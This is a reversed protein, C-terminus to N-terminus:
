RPTWLVLRVVSLGIPNPRRPYRTAFLGHREEDLFPKVLLEGNYHTALNLRRLGIKVFPAEIEIGISRGNLRDHGRWHSVGAHAARRVEPVLRFVAGDEDVVYHSSVIALPDRLRDIAEQASRM